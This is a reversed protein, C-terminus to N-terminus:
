RADTGNGKLCEMEGLQRIYGQPLNHESAGKVLHKLYDCRPRLGEEVKNKGAVYCVADITGAETEVPLPVRKYHDPVGECRDLKRLEQERLLYLVGYVVGQDKPRVNAYGSGDNAVKNFVLEYGRLTGIKWEICSRGVRRELRESDMNSGYAFYWVMPEM